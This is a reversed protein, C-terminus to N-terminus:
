ESPAPPGYRAKISGWSAPEVAVPGCGVDFAGILECGAPSHDPACPSAEGLRFDRNPRDCFLPDAAINGNTGTPDPWGEWNAPSNGWLDNCTVALTSEGDGRSIGSGPTNFAAINRAIVPHSNRTTYIGGGGLTGANAVITNGIVQPAAGDWITIGGGYHGSTNGDIINREIHASGIHDCYIGGGSGLAVNDRVVNAVLTPSSWNIYFGAGAGATNGAITNGTLTPTAGMWISVGGGFYGCTNGTINNRELRASGIHDCYVGGGSGLSENDRIVNDRLAPSSYNVYLGGAAEAFNDRIVNNVIALDAYDLRIGGGVNNPTFPEARGNMLTFGEIRTQPGVYSARLVRDLHRGDIITLAPGAESALAVGDHLVGMVLNEAYTGPAVLVLDGFTSADLATQISPYDAPVRRTTAGAGTAVGAVLVLVVLFWSRHM